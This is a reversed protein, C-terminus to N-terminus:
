DHHDGVPTAWWRTGFEESVVHDLRAVYRRVLQTGTRLHTGRL